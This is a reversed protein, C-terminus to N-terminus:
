SPPKCLMQRLDQLKGMVRQMKLAVTLRFGKRSSFPVYEGDYCCCQMQNRNWCQGRCMSEMARTTRDENKPPTVSKPAVVTGWFYKDKTLEPFCVGGKRLVCKPEVRSECLAILSTRNKTKSCITKLSPGTFAGKGSFGFNQVYRQMDEGYCLKTGPKCSQTRQLHAKCKNNCEGRQDADQIGRCGEHGAHRMAAQSKKKKKDRVEITKALTATLNKVKAQEKSLRSKTKQLTENLATAAKLMATKNTAEEEAHNSLKANLTATLNKSKAQEKLLSKRTENLEKELSHARKWAMAAEEKSAPTRTQNENSLAKAADAVSAVFESRMSETVFSGCSKVLQEMVDAPLQRAESNGLFYLIALIAPMLRVLPMRYPKNAWMIAWM